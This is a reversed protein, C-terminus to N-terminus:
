RWPGQPPWDDPGESELLPVLFAGVAGVVEALSAPADKLGSKNLFASWRVQAEAAFAPTLAIPLRELPTHRTAFTANIAARLSQRKFAFNRSLLWLDYFDKMRGNAMGLIVMAHLKEAITTERQYARLRPAPFDLLTPVEVEVPPPIVSDGFGVDLQMTAEAPGLYGLFKARVGSYEADEKIVAGTVSKPDFRLGDPQVTQDCIERVIGVLNEISNQTRGLLDMDKTPRVLSANWVGLLLGGKLVFTSAHRSQSLRYLFREMTYLRFLDAFPRGTKKALNLLRTHVSKSVDKLERTM